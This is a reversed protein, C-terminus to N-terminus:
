QHNGAAKELRDFYVIGYVYGAITPIMIVLFGFYGFKEVLYVLGFSTIVYMLTRSLAYSFSTYTLRKFISIHKYPIARAPVYDCALSIICSQIFFITYHHHLINILFPTLLTIFVFLLTKIKVIKPPYVRYSLFTLVIISFLQVLSVFFNQHIVQESSFNFEQKLINGCYVYAFYFCIPWGCDMLFLALLTQRPQKNDKWILNNEIEKQQAPNLANQVRKKADAFDPTEKLTTRAIFGILAVGAGFWFASRWNLSYMTTISSVALAATGGLISFVSTLTVVQYRIPPETIETLYLQSGVLEGMSSMGQLIRCLTIAWSAYIGIQAYTPLNAMVFCSFAMMFTTIIVTSKRGINDGIWGFLLAGFPRLLYTSCFAFASLLAATHPDTKPFFLENLLVAMHIYLMLDFYELFTGISLLAVAEKQEKTLSHSNKM